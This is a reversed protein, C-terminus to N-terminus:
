KKCYRIAEIFGDYMRDINVENDYVDLCVKSMQELLQDDRLLTLVKDKYEEENDVLYGTKGDKMYYIEPAHRGKLLVIPLGWFLAQNVALGIHGPTSFVDGMKYIADVEDGYKEGLYYVNDFADVRKQLEDSMGPGVIVVAIDKEGGFAEIVLDPRKYPMLRSIYLIVRKEKIGYKSKTEGESPLAGKDIGSLNITNYAVFLKKQNKDTFYQRMEPTYTILADCRDHIFHFIANKTKDDPTELNIGHNWYIIPIHHMKCYYIIPLMIKDKLHLFVIVVDPKMAKIQKCYGQVSFPETHQIFKNEWDVKQYSDSLVHFEFGDKQFADFFYNYVKQRYHFVHNSILLVKKM